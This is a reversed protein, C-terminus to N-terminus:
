HFRQSVLSQQSFFFSRLMDSKTFVTSYEKFKRGFCSRFIAQNLKNKEARRKGDQENCKRQGGEEVYKLYFPRILIAVTIFYVKFANLFCHTALTQTLNINRLLTQLYKKTGYNIKFAM